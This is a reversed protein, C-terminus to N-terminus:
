NRTELYPYRHQTRTDLCTQTLYWTAEFYKNLVLRLNYNFCSLFLKVISIQVFELCERSDEARNSEADLNLMLRACFSIQSRFYKVALKNIWSVCMLDPVFLITFTIGVVHIFKIIVNLLFKLWVLIQGLKEHCSAHCVHGDSLHHDHTYWPDPIDDLCDGVIDM